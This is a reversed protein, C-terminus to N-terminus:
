RRQKASRCPQNAAIKFKGTALLSKHATLYADLLSRAVPGPRGDGITAGDIRTVARVLMGAGSAFAERAELAEELTFTREVWKLGLMRVTEVLAARTIGPLINAALPATVVEGAATVIYASSSAGETVHGDEIMWAEDAGNAAAYQKALVQALLATSKIQRRAWRLDPCSVVALGTESGAVARLARHEVFAVLTPLTDPRPVFGRGPESGRTIQLYVLGEDLDNRLVLRRQLALLDSASWPVVLGIASLSSRLRALHADADILHGDIVATVEYVADAFLFGRDTVPVRAASLPLFQGNLWAIPQNM